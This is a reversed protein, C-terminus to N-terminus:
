SEVLNNLWRPCTVDVRKMGLRFERFGGKIDLATPKEETKSENTLPAELAALENSSLPHGRPQTGESHM